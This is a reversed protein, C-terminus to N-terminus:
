TFRGMSDRGRRYQENGQMEEKADKCGDEYGEEYGKKYAEEYEQSKMMASSGGYNKYSGRMHRRMDSRMNGGGENDRDLIILGM